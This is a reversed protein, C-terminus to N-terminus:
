VNIEIIGKKLIFLNSFSPIPFHRNIKVIPNMHSYKQHLNIAWPTRLFHVLSIAKVSSEVDQCIWVYDPINILWAPITVCIWFGTYGQCIWFGPMNLFKAFEFNQCIPFGPINLVSVHECGQCIRLWPINLIRTDESVQPIRFKTM